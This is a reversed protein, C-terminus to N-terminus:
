KTVVKKVEADMEKKVQGRHFTVVKDYWLKVRCTKRTPHTQFFQEIKEIANKAERKLEKKTPKPYIVIM